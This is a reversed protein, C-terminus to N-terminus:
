PREATDPLSASVGESSAHRLSRTATRRDMMLRRPMKRNWSSVPLTGCKEGPEAAVRPCLPMPLCL